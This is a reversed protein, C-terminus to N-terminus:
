YAAKYSYHLRKCYYINNFHVFIFIVDNMQFLKLASSNGTNLVKADVKSKLLEGNISSRCLIYIIIFLTCPWATALHLMYMM